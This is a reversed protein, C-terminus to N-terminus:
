FAATRGTISTMRASRLEEDASADALLLQQGNLIWHSSM